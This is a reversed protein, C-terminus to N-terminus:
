NFSAEFKACFNHYQGKGKHNEPKVTPLDFLSTLAQEPVAVEWPLQPFTFCLQNKDKPPKALFAKSSMM